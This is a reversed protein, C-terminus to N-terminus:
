HKKIYESLIKATIGQETILESATGHEIGGDRYAFIKVNPNKFKESLYLLVNAGFGGSRIGDELTIVTKDKLRDLVATDLPRISRANYLAFCKSDTKLTEYAISIMRDGVALVVYKSKVDNLCEWEFPNFAKIQRGNDVATCTRPYRIALPHTATVSYELMFSLECLDKPALIQMNPVTYFYSIDYVGQHTVGDPGSIGARDVCFVVPLDQLGVDHLIQDYARQLFTSYIYVYPRMGGKSLGAALTVAHQEAIGVDFFRNPYLNAFNELGVGETMAATIATIKPNNEAISCLINGSKKSFSLAPTDGNPSIGHFAEPNIEAVPLGRGKKTLLHLLVPGEAERAFNLYEIIEAINHGDIPGIYKLGFQEFLKGGVLAYKLRERFGDALRVASAGVLPLTEFFRRASHKFRYYSKSIRIKSLYRAMGGVNQSISMENDNLIVIMRTKSAGLDSLAEYAMGGTLAGDGIIGIIDYSERNIDRARAYGLGASVSTSSHGTDFADHPSESAKPFGSLGGKSRLGRLEDKRGTLIKHVYSQHGVDWILKDDPSIFVYHLAITLEVVGLNSALHGGTLTVTNILFSRIEGALQKLEGLTLNKIDEPSTVNDLIRM